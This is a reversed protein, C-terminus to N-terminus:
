GAMEWFHGPRGFPGVKGCPRPRGCEFAPRAIDSANFPLNDFM